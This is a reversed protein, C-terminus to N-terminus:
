EIVEDAIALLGPPVTLELARATKLNVVFEFKSPQLVPLETPKEGKLIRGVYGGALRYADPLDIGYSMLGGALSYQRFQYMVPLKHRAELAVLQDRRGDFFPDASVLLALIHERTVRDFAAEIEAPSSAHLVRIKQGLGGAATELQRVEDAASPFDPNILIGITDASPVMDHLLALRKAELATTFIHVGTANTGPRNFTEVIGLKTPDSGVVFVIPVTSTASKAFLAASESGTVLINAGLHLLEEAIAPLRDYEGEAWRYTVKVSEGEAFGAERLGRRLASVLPTGGDQSRAHMFGVLPVTAQQARLSPPAAIATGGLLAIFDRRKM